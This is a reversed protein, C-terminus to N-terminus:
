QMEIQPAADQAPINPNLMGPNLISEVQNKINTALDRQGAKSAAELLKQLTHLSLYEERQISQMGAFKPSLSNVYKLMQINDEALKELLHNAKETEGLEYYLTIYDLFVIDIPVQSLPLEELSKDLVAIAKEDQGESHLQAALRQFTNRYQIVSINNDHFHDINVKPDKINGWEFKNMIHDYLIDSDIRGYEMVGYENRRPTTEIPLLRYTAGELQLYKELGMYSDTPLGIGFYIPREWNNTSIIDLLMTESKNLGNGKLSFSLEKAIKDADKAKVTGNAIVQASDIPLYLNRTPIYDIDESMGREKLKTQPLDSAVFEMAERLNARPYRELIYVRDRKGDRYQKKTFSIPVAPSEYARRSIQDIYWPGALLSLNVIRVDRRVGEVEQAYWLPFTDNDGYTFLIANPACSNLYNKAHALTAYRGARTHDDWNEAAMNVPVAFFCVGTVIIAATSPNMKRIRKTMFEWLSLIGLGIWIAYAYFSGAYAYDRERPEMPSQNLYVIIAIGTMIFLLMVVWFDQKGKRGKRYQYFMGLIGLLFPLMYYKNYAKESKLTDPLESQKGLRMEDLFNIGTIWNGHLIDGNGQIDNQRGSFNWMFYRWYMHGLQYNFFYRMNNGFSPRTVAEGDVMYTPGNNKGGWIQYQSPYYSRQDSHMRPFFGC